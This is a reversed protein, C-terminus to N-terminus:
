VAAVADTEDYGGISAIKITPNKYIIRGDMRHGFFNNLCLM